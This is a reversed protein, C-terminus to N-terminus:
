DARIKSRKKGTHGTAKELRTMQDALCLWGEAATLLRRSNRPNREAQALKEEAHARCEASTFMVIVGAWQSRYRIPLVHTQDFYFVHHARAM